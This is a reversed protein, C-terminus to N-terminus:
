GNDTTPKLQMLQQYGATLYRYWRVKMKGLPTLQWAQKGRGLDLPQILKMRELEKIQLIRNAVRGTLPLPTRGRRLQETEAWIEMHQLGWLIPMDALPIEAHMLFRVQFMTLHLEQDQLENQLAEAEELPTQPLPSAATQKNDM